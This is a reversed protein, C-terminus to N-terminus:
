NFLDWIFLHIVTYETGRERAEIDIRIIRLIEAVAFGILLKELMETKQNRLKMTYDLRSPQTRYVAHVERGALSLVPIDPNPIETSIDDTAENLVTPNVVAFNQDPFIGDHRHL